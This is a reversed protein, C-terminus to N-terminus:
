RDDDPDGGPDGDPGPEGDAGADRPPPLALGIIGALRGAAADLRAGGSATDLMDALMADLRGLARRIEVLVGLRDRTYPIAGSPLKNDVYHLWEERAYRPGHTVRGDEDVSEVMKDDRDDDGDAGGDGRATGPVANPDSDFDRLVRRQKRDPSRGPLSVPGSFDVVQWDLRISGVKVGGGSRGGSGDGSRDGEITRRNTFGGPTEAEYDVVIYRTWQVDRRSEILHKLHQKLRERDRAVHMMGDECAIWLGHDTDVRLEVEAYGDRALSLALRGAKKGPLKTTPNVPISRVETPELHSPLSAQRTM